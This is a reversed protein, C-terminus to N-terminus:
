AKENPIMKTNIVNWYELGTRRAYPTFRDFRSPPFSTTRCCFEHQFLSDFLHNNQLTGQLM